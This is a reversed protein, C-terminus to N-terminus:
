APMMREEAADTTYTAALGDGHRFVVGTRILEALAADLNRAVHLFRVPEQPIYGLDARLLDPVTPNGRLVNPLNSLLNGLHRNIRRLTWRLDPEPLGVAPLGLPADLAALHELTLLLQSADLLDARHISTDALVRHAFLARGPDHLALHGHDPGPTHLARLTRQGAAVTQADTIPLLDLRQPLTPPLWADLHEQWTEWRMAAGFTPLDRLQDARRQLDDRLRRTWAAYDAPEQLDPSFALLDAWPFAEAGGLQVPGWDLAIVRAIDGHRLGVSALADALAQQQAPHGAGLLAPADGTLLYLNHPGAWPAPLGPLPLAIQYLDDELRQIAYTM